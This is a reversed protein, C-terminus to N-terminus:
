AQKYKSLDQDPHEARWQLEEIDCEMRRIKDQDVTDAADVAGQAVFGGVAGLATCAPTVWLPSAIRLVPAVACYGMYLPYTALQLVGSAVNITSAYAGFAAGAGLGMAIFKNDKILKKM